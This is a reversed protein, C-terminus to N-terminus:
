RVPPSAAGVRASTSGTSDGWGSEKSGILYHRNWFWELTVLLILCRTAVTCAYPRSLCDEAMTLRPIGHLELGDPREM